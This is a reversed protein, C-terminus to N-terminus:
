DAGGEGLVDNGPDAWTRLSAAVDKWKRNAILAECFLTCLTLDVRLPVKVGCLEKVKLVDELIESFSRKACM